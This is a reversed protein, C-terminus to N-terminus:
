ARAMSALRGRQGYLFDEVPGIVARYAELPTTLRMNADGGFDTRFNGPEVL